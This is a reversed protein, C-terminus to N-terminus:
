WNADAQGEVGLEIVLHHASSPFYPMAPKDKQAKRLPVLLADGDTGRCVSAIARVGLQERVMRVVDALKHETKVEVAGLWAEDCAKSRYVRLDLRVPLREVSHLTRAPGRGALPPQNSTSTLSVSGPFRLRPAARDKPEDPPAVAPAM